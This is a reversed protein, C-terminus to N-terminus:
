IDCKFAGFEDEKTLIGGIVHKFKSHVLVYRQQVNYIIEKGTKNGNMASYTRLNEGM